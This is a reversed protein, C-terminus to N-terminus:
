ATRQREGQVVVKQCTRGASRSHPDNTIKLRRLFENNVSHIHQLRSLITNRMVTSYEGKNGATCANCGCTWGATRSHSSRENIESHIHQISRLLTNLMVTNYERNGARGHMCKEWLDLRCHALSFPTVCMAKGAMEHPIYPHSHTFPATTHLQHILAPLHAQSHNMLM